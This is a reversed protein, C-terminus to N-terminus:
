TINSVQVVRETQGMITNEGAAKESRLQQIEHQPHRKASAHAALSAETIHSPSVQLQTIKNTSQTRLNQILENSHVQQHQLKVQTRLAHLPITLLCLLCWPRYLQRNVQLAQLQSEAADKGHKVQASEKRLQQM